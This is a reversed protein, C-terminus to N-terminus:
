ASASNPQAIALTTPSAPCLNAALACRASANNAAGLEPSFPFHHFDHIMRTAAAGSAAPSARHATARAVVLYYLRM